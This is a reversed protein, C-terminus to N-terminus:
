SKKQRLFEYGFRCYLCRKRDCYEKKLQILAQTDAASEARLGCQEWMRTIYNSEPKLTELFRLARQCLAENDRYRGYAFYLQELMLANTGKGSSYTDILKNTPVENKTGELQFDVRSFYKQHDAVHEALLESWGKKKADNLRAEITSSLAATNSIYSTAYADYDTGGALLLLVEDAGTVTVGEDTTEITGGTPVVKM